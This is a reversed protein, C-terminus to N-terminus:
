IIKKEHLLLFYIVFREGFYSNTVAPANDPFKDLHITNLSVHRQNLLSKNRKPLINILLDIFLCYNTNSLNFSLIKLYKKFGKLYENTCQWIQIQITNCAIDFVAM